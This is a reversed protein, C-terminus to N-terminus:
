WAPDVENFGPARLRTDPTGAPPHQGGQLDQFIELGELGIPDIHRDVIDEAVYDASSERHGYSFPKCLLDVEDTGPSEHADICGVVDGPCHLAQCLPSIDPKGPDDAVAIAVLRELM